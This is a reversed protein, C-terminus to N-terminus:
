GASSHCEFASHVAAPHGSEAAAEAAPGSFGSM